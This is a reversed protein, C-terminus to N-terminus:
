AKGLAQVVDVRSISIAPWLGALLGIGLSVGVGVLAVAPEIELDRLAFNSLNLGQFITLCLVAALVGGSVCILFTETLVLRVIKARRFGLARLMGFDARRERLSTALTSATIVATVTLMLISIWMMLQPVVLEKGFMSAYMWQSEPVAIIPEPSSAFEKEIADAVMEYDAPDVMAMISTAGPTRELHSAQEWHPIALLGKGLFGGVIGVIKGEIDGVYTRLVVPDGVRKGLVALLSETVLIGQKDARWNARHDPAISVLGGVSEPFESSWCWVSFHPGDEIRAGTGRSWSVAKVKPLSAIRNFYSEPMLRQTIPSNIILRPASSSLDQMAYIRRLGSSSVVAIGVSLTVALVTVFTRLRHRRISAIVLGTM